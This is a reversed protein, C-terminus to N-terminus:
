CGPQTPDFPHLVVISTVNKDAELKVFNCGMWTPPNSGRTATIKLVAEHQYEFSIQGDDNTTGSFMPIADPVDATATVYVNPMPRGDERVVQITFPYNPTEKTCGQVFFSAIAVFFLLRTTILKM